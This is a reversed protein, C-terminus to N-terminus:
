KGRAVAIVECAFTKLLINNSQQSWLKINDGNNRMENIAFSKSIPQNNASM